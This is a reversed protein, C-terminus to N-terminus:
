LTVNFVIEEKNYDGGLAIYFDGNDDADGVLISCDKYSPEGSLHECIQFIANNISGYKRFTDESLHCKFTVM